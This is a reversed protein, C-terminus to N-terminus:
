PQEDGGTGSRRNRLYAVTTAHLFGLYEAPTRGAQLDVNPIEVSLHGDPGVIDILEELPAIGRGPLLRHFRSELVLDSDAPDAGEPRGEPWSRPRPSADCLQLVPFLDRHRRLLEIDAGTRVVHLADLEVQCGAERAIEIARDFSNLRAYAIPELVPMIGHALADATLDGVASAFGSVSSTRAVVNLLSAGLEAAMELVPLWTERTSLDDIVLVEIDLVRLGSAAVAARLERFSSSSPAYVPDRPTVPSLRLGLEAFGAEAAAAVYSAVPADVACLPAVGLARRSSDTSSM